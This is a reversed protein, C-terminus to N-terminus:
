EPAKHEGTGAAGHHAAPVDQNRHSCCGMACHACNGCNGGCSSRGKRKDRILVAIIVTLVAALAAAILITALNELIWAFM